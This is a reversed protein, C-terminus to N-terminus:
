LALWAVAGIGALSATLATVTETFRCLGWRRLAWRDLRNVPEWPVCARVAPPEKGEFALFCFRLIQMKSKENMKMGEKEFYPNALGLWLAVRYWLWAICAICLFGWRYVEIGARVHERIKM